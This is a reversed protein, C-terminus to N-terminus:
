PPACPRSICSPRAPHRTQISRLVPSPTSLRGSQPIRCPAWQPPVTGGVRPWVPHLIVTPASVVETQSPARRWDEMRPPRPYRVVCDADLAQHAGTTWDRLVRLGLARPPRTPPLGYIDLISIPPWADFADSWMFAGAEVRPEQPVFPLYRYPKRPEMLLVRARPSDVEQHLLEATLAAHAFLRADIAARIDRSTSRLLLLTSRYAAALIAGFIHPYSDHPISVPHPQASM